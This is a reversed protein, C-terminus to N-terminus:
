YVTKIYEGWFNFKDSPTHFHLPIFFSVTSRTPHDKLPDRGWVCEREREAIPFITSSEPTVADSCHGVTTYTWSLRKDTCPACWKKQKRKEIREMRHTGFRVEYAPWPWLQQGIYYSVPRASNRDGTHYVCCPSIIHHEEIV